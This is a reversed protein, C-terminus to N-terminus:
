ARLYKLLFQLVTWPNRKTLKKIFRLFLYFIGLAQPGLWWRHFLWPIYPLIFFLKSNFVNILFIISSLIQIIGSRINIWAVALSHTSVNCLFALSLNSIIKLKLGRLMFSSSNDALSVLLYLALQKVLNLLVLRALGAPSTM